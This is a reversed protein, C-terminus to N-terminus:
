WFSIYMDLNSYQNLLNTLDHNKNCKIVADTIKSLNIDPNKLVHKLPIKVCKFFESSKDPPRNKKEEIASM